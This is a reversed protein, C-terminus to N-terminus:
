WREVHIPLASEQVRYTGLQGGQNAGWCWVSGDSRLACARDVSVTLQRVGDLGSVPASEAAAPSTTGRGLQGVDNAGKCSVVGEPSVACSGVESLAISDVAGLGTVPLATGNGNQSWCRVGNSQLLVCGGAGSTVVGRVADGADPVFETL